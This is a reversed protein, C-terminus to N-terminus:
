YMLIISLYRCLGRMSPFFISIDFFYDIELGKSFIFISAVHYSYMAHQANMNYQGYGVCQQM